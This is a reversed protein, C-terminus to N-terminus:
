GGHLALVAAIFAGDAVGTESQGLRRQLSSIHHPEIKDTCGAGLNKMRELLGEPSGIDPLRVVDLKFERPPEDPYFWVKLTVRAVSGSVLQFLVGDADTMAGDPSLRTAGDWLEYRYNAWPGDQGALRLHVRRPMFVRNSGDGDSPQRKVQIVPTPTM